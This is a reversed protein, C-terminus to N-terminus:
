HEKNYNNSRLSIDLQGSHNEKQKPYAESNKKKLEIKLQLILECTFNHLILVAYAINIPPIMKHFEGIKSRHDNAFTPFLVPSHGYMNFIDKIFPFVLHTVM